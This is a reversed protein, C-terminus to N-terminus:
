FPLRDALSKVSSDQWDTKIRDDMWREVDEDHLSPDEGAFRGDRWGEHYAQRVMERLTEIQERETMHDGMM